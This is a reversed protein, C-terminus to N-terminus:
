KFPEFLPIGATIGDPNPQCNYPLDAIQVTEVDLIVKRVTPMNQGNTEM